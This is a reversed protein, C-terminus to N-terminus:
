VKRQRGAWYRDRLERKLVKGYANKPLAPLFEVSQPKKYSALHRKCHEVIESETVRMGERAVVLAKVTEGWKADPIGIVSVEFVAPHRCIVEEIERPYINSGGSIIMDKKRDTIYLYGDEDLCGIDGTHLWGGRLAEATAEPNNWYGKMVLDGRVVIEGMQGAPVKRDEDDVVRVRVATTERGASALRKLKVPDDGALHEEKPLSTITCPAEGQGYVQVFIVGFARVAELLQNLYMPSGGYWITHLSSLDYKSKDPSAMLLNIMTPVLFMTTVRYRQIAEFIQPPDFSRTAPFANAAGVAIHHLISLGSAHTIPAAHLVVDGPVAPNVNLLFQEAMTILNRHTLMAGKPHGTTGSTYFIWALDDSEIAPDPPMDLQGDLVQDYTLDGPAGRGVCIFHKLSTLNERMQALQERFEEGYVLAFAGSDNLMYEHESPHLRINMPVVAMGAKMPALLAELGQYCNSVLIAVRGGPQGRLSLLAHALRNARVEAERFSIAVDGQLWAPRNPHRLAARSLFHGVHM